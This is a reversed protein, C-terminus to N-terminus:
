ETGGEKKDELPLAFPNAPVPATAPPAIGSAPADPVPCPKFRQVDNTTGFQPTIKVTVLCLCFTDEGFPPYEERLKASSTLGLPALATKARNMGAATDLVFWRWLTHGAHQTPTVVSFRLRYANKGSGTTTLEGCEIKSLYTGAPVHTQGSASDFGSIDGDGQGPADDFNPFSDFNLPATMTHDLPNLTAM